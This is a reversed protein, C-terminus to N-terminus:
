HIATNFFSVAHSLICCYLKHLVLLLGFTTLLISLPVTQLLRYMLPFFLSLSLSMFFVHTPHGLALCNLQSIIFLLLFQCTIFCSVFYLHLINSVKQRSGCGSVSITYSSSFLPFFFFSVIIIILVSFLSPIYLFHTHTEVRSHILGPGDM